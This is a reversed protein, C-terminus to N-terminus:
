HASVLFEREAVVTTNGVPDTARLSILYRGPDLRGPDITLAIANPQGPQLELTWGLRGPTATGGAFGLKSGIWGAMRTIASPREISRVELEVQATSAANSSTTLEAYVGLRTGVAVEPRALPLVTPDTRKTPLAGPSFPATLLLGSLAIRGAAAPRELRFRARVGLRTASDYAEASYFRAAAPVPLRSLFTLSDGLNKVTAAQRAIVNLASDLLFVAGDLPKGASIKDTRAGGVVLLVGPTDVFMVAQHQLERIVRITPPAHGSRATLTDIPWVTDVRARMALVKDLDPPVYTHEAPDWHEVFSQQVNINGGVFSRTTVVGVGFRVLLQYEDEDWSESSAPIPRARMMYALAHRAYHDALTENGPTLYLADAFRWVEAERPQYKDAEGYSVLWELDTIREHETPPLGAIWHKFEALAAETQRAYHLAFGLLMHSTISDNARAYARAVDLAESARDDRVLLRVLPFVTASRGPALEFAKNLAVIAAARAKAVKGPEPPLKEQGNEYTICYRGVREDCDRGNYPPGPKFEAYKRISEEAEMEAKRAAQFVATTDVTQARLPTPAALGFRALLALLFFRPIKRANQIQSWGATM